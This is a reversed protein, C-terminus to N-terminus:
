KGFGLAALRRSAYKEIEKIFERDDPNEHVIRHHLLLQYAKRVVTPQTKRFRRDAMWAQQLYTRVARYEINEDADAQLDAITQNFNFRNDIM